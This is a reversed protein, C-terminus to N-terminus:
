FHIIKDTEQLDIAQIWGNETLIKHDETCILERHNDFSLKIWRLKNPPQKSINVVEDNVFDGNNFSLIKDGVELEKIPREEGNVMLVKTDAQVCVHSKETVNVTEGDIFCYAYKRFNELDFKPLASFLPPGAVQNSVNTEEIIPEYHKM